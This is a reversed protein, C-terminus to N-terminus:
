KDRAFLHNTTGPFYKERFSQYVKIFRQCYMAGIVTEMLLTIVTTKPVRSKETM